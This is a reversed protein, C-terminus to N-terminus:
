KKSQTKEKKNINRKVKIDEFKVEILGEKEKVDNLNKEEEM